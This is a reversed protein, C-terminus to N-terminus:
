DKRLLYLHDLEPKRTTRLGSESELKGPFTLFDPLHAVDNNLWLWLAAEVSGVM